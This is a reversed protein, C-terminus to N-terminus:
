RVEVARIFLGSDIGAGVGVAVEEHLNLEILGRDRKGHPRSGTFRSLAESWSWVSQSLTQLTTLPNRCECAHADLRDANKDGVEVGVRGGIVAGSEESRPLIRAHLEVKRLVLDLDEQGRRARFGPAILRGDHSGHQRRLLAGPAQDHDEGTLHRLSESEVFTPAKVAADDLSPAESCGHTPYDDVLDDVGEGWLM